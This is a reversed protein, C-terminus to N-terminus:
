PLWMSSQMNNQELWTPTLETIKGIFYNLIYKRIFEDKIQKALERLRKEFIALSSPTNTSQKKFHEFLFRTNSSKKKM